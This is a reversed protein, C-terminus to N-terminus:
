SSSEVHIHQIIGVLLAATLLSSGGYSFFPFTLGTVPLLGVNSGTNVFFQALFLAAAGIALFRSYNDNARAGISIIRVLFTFYAALLVLAGVTGWEEVFAAFLFDNHAAPLFGLRAQTGGGFGKGFFGASGIAIKSQIVNYSTGLPDREPFLFGTIRAKQYPALAFSWLLATAIGALVVGAFFRKMHIGSALFIGLWITLVILASGLDPHFMILMVPIGVAVLSFLINRGRWAELHRRAFFHALLVILALKMLESPEFQFGGVILWSTTGRIVTGQLHTAVLLLLALGYLGFRFWREGGLWRWNIYVAGFIIILAIGYWLLQRLFFDPAISALAILSASAIVVLAGMMKWDLAHFRYKM